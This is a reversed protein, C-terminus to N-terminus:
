RRIHVSYSVVYQVTKLNAPLKEAGLHLHLVVHHHVRALAVELALAAVPLKWPFLPQAFVDRDTAM